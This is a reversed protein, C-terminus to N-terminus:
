VYSYIYVYVFGIWIQTIPKWNASINCFILQHIQVIYISFFISLLHKDSQLFCASLYKLTMKTMNAFMVVSSHQCCNNNNPYYMAFVFELAYLARLVQLASVATDYDDSVSTAESSPDSSLVDWKMLFMNAQNGEGQVEEEGRIIFCLHPFCAFMKLYDSAALSDVIDNELAFFFKETRHIILCLLEKKPRSTVPGEFYLYQYQM